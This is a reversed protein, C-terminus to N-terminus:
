APGAARELRARLKSASFPVTEEGLSEGLAALLRRANAPSRLLYATEQFSELDDAAILAVRAGNPGTLVITEHDEAARRLLSALDRQAEAYSTEITM